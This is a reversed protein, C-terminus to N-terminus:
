ESIYNKKKRKEKEGGGGRGGEREEEEEEKDSNDKEKKGEAGGGGREGQEEKLWSHPLSCSGFSKQLRSTKTAAKTVNTLYLATCYKKLPSLLPQSPPFTHM